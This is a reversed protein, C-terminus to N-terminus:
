TGGNLRSLAAARLDGILDRVSEAAFVEGADQSNMPTFLDVEGLLARVRELASEAAEARRVLPANGEVATLLSTHAEALEGRL